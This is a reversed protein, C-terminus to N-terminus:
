DGLGVHAGLGVGMDDQQATIQVQGTPKEHVVITTALKNRMRMPSTSNLMDDYEAARTAGIMLLTCLAGAARGEANTSRCPVAAARPRSQAQCGDWEGIPRYRGRS